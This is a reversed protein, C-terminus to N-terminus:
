ANPEPFLGAASDGQKFRKAREAEYASGAHKLAFSADM